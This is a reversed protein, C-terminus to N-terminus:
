KKREICRMCEDKTVRGQFLPCTVVDKDTPRICYSKFSGKVTVIEPETEKKM